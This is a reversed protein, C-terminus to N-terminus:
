SGKKNSAQAAAAGGQILANLYGSDQATARNGLQDYYNSVAQGQGSVGAAKALQNQYQQQPLQENLNATNQAGTAGYQAATNRSSANYQQAALSNAANAQQANYQGQATQQAAQNAINANNLQNQNMNQTNFANIADQAQAKQAGQSFQQNIASNSLTGSQSIANLANQQAQGAITLGAQSQQNTAGQSSQLQALLNNGGSAMGSAGFQQQIAGRRGADAQAAQSQIMALNAKDADTLGGGSAIKNLSDIAALQNNQLRPDVSVNALASPGQQSVGALRPDLQGYSISDPSSVVSPDYKALDQYPDLTPTDIGQYAKQGQQLAELSAADTASTDTGFIPNLVASLLGM